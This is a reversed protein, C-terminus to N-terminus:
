SRDLLQQVVDLTCLEQEVPYGRNLVATAFWGVLPDEALSRLGRHTPGELPFPERPPHPWTGVDIIQATPVAELVRRAIRVGGLDADVIAVVRKKPSALSQIVHGADDGFQGATYVVPLEPHKACVAEAPQLNEIAVVTHAATTVALGPQDLRLILPGRLGHLRLGGAATTVTIPGGLGIRDGRRLGLQDLVTSPVGAATLVAPVDHAKTGEFHAQTFARPGAHEIGALLDQAAALLVAVAVPAPTCRLAQALEFSVPEVEQAIENRAAHRRHEDQASRSRDVEASALAEDTPQWWRPEGIVGRADVACALEVVGGRVLRVAVGAASPGYRNVITTWRRRGAGLAFRIDADPVTAVPHSPDRVLVIERTKHRRRRDHVEVLEGDREVVEVLPV